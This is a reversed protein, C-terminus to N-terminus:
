KTELKFTFKKGDSKRTWTKGSISRRKITGESIKNELRCSSMSHYVKETGDEAIMTVKRCSSILKTKVAHSANEKRNVWELNELKNNKKDGDIHNVINKDKPMPEFASLVLRHMPRSCGIGEKNVLSVYLYGKSDNGKIIRRGRDVNRLRGMDSVQYRYKLDIDVKLDRWIEGEIKRTEYKYRWYYGCTLKLKSNLSLTKGESILKEDVLYKCAENVSPWVKILKKDRDYQEVKLTKKVMTESNERNLKASAWRLNVVRNDRRNRNIHDVMPLNEPNPLFTLAILRHMQYCRKINESCRISVRVYGDRSLSDKQIYNTEVNKIRGMNSFLYGPFKENAKWEEGELEGHDECYRFKKFLEKYLQKKTMSRAVNCKINRDISNIKLLENKTVCSLCKATEDPDETYREGKSDWRLNVVRNNLLDGDIHRVIPLNGPNEIYAEAILRHTLIGRSKGDACVLSTRSYGDVLSRGLISLTEINKVRGMNSFLYLPYDPNEIWKEGEIDAHKACFRFKGFLKLYLENKTMKRSDESAVKKTVVGYKALDSKRSCTLCSVTSSLKDYKQKQIAKSTSLKWRLNTVANNSLDDDIHEVEKCEKVNPIFIEAIVKDVRLAKTKGDELKLGMMARGNRRIRGKTVYLTEKNRIRGLDSFLYGPYKAYERWNEGEVDSHEECFIYKGYLQKFLRKKPVGEAERHTFKKADSGIKIMDKKTMCVVCKM